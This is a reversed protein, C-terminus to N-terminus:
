NDFRLSSLTDNFSYQALWLAPYNGVPLAINSGITPFSDKGFVVTQTGTGNPGNKIIVSSIMDNNLMAFSTNCDVNSGSGDNKDVYVQGVGNYYGDTYVEVVTKVTSYTSDSDIAPVSPSFYNVDNFATTSINDNMGLSIFNPYCGVQLKVAGGSHDLNNYITVTPEQNNHDLKWASYTPGRYVIASSVIDNFNRTTLNAENELVTIHNNNYQTDQFLVLVLPMSAYSAGISRAATSSTQNQQLVASTPGACSLLILSIAFLGSINRM